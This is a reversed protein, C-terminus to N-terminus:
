RRQMDVTVRERHSEAEAAHRGIRRRLDRRRQRRQTREGPLDDDTDVTADAGVLEERVRVDGVPDHLEVEPQRHFPRAGPEM